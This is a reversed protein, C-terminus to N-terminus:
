KRGQGLTETWIVYKKKVPDRVVIFPKKYKLQVTHPLGNLKYTFKGSLTDIWGQISALTNGEVFNTINADSIKDLEERMFELAVYHNKNYM